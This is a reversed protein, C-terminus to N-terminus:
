IFKAGSEINASGCGSHKRDVASNSGLALKMRRKALLANEINFTVPHEYVPFKANMSFSIKMAPMIYGQGPKVSLKLPLMKDILGFAREQIGGCHTFFHADFIEVKFYVPENLILYVRRPKRDQLTLHASGQPLFHEDDVCGIENEQLDAPEDAYVQRCLQNARHNAVVLKAWLRQSHKELKDHKHKCDQDHIHRNSAAQITEEALQM